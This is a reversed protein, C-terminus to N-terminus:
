LAGKIKASCDEIFEDIKLCSHLRVLYDTNDSVFVLEAFAGMWTDLITLTFDVGAENKFRYVRTEKPSTRVCERQMDTIPLSAIMIAMRVQLNSHTISDGSMEERVEKNHLESELTTQLLKAATGEARTTRSTGTMMWKVRVHNDSVCIRSSGIEYLSMCEDVIRSDIQLNHLNVFDEILAVNIQRFGYPEVWDVIRHKWDNVLRTFVDMRFGQRMKGVAEAIAECYLHIADAQYGYIEMMQPRHPSDKPRVLMVGSSISLAYLKGELFERLPRLRTGLNLFAKAEVFGNSGDSTGLLREALHISLQHSIFKMDYREVSYPEAPEITGYQKDSLRGFQDVVRYSFSPANDAPMGIEIKYFDEFRM